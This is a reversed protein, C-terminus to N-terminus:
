YALSVKQFASPLGRKRNRKDELPFGLYKLNAIITKDLRLCMVM